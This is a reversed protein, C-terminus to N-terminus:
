WINKSLIEAIKELYVADVEDFTNLETSDIDIVGWVEKEDDGDTQVFIPVVIESRSLSSCAIHGPFEEVDPVVLTKREKWASGCVGKGYPIEYCAVTGQFPGLLLRGGAGGQLSPLNVAVAEIKATVGKLNGIVEENTFRLETYGLRKLEETRYQDYNRQEETNHYGGDIEITLMRDYCMFDVIFDHIIHQRRFHMGLSNAKLAKWLASEAETPNNRMRRANEKLLEYNFPDAMLVGRGSPISQPITIERGKLSPGPTPKEGKGKPLPRPYATYFGVWFYEEPFMTKMAASVNALVGTVNTEGDVLSEVQKCLLEYKERKEM